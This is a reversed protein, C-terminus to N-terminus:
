DLYQMNPRIEGLPNFRKNYIDYILALNSAVEEFNQKGIITAKTALSIMKDMTMEVNDQDDIPFKYMYVGRYFSCVERLQVLSSCLDYVDYYVTMDNDNCAQVLENMAQKIENTTTLQNWTLSTVYGTFFCTNVHNVYDFQNNTGNPIYLSFISQLLRFGFEYMIQRKFIDSNMNSYSTHPTQSFGVNNLRLQTANAQYTERIKLAKYAVRSLNPRRYVVDRVINYIRDYDANSDNPNSGRIGGVLSSQKGKDDFNMLILYARKYGDRDNAFDKSLRPRAFDMLSM